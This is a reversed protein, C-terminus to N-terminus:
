SLVWRVLAKAEALKTRPMNLTSDLERPKGDDPRTEEVRLSEIFTASMAFDPQMWTYRQGDVTFTFGYSAVQRAERFVGTGDCKDCDPDGDCWCEQEPLWKVLKEVRDTFSEAEYLREILRSKLARIDERNADSCTSHRTYRNLNFM